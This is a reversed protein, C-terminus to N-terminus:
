ADFFHVTVLKASAPAALWSWVAKVEAGDALQQAV